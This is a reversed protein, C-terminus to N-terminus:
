STSVIRLVPALVTLVNKACCAFPCIAVYEAVMLFLAYWQLYKPRAWADM